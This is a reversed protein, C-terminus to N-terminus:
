PRRSPRRPSPWPARADRARDVRHALRHLDDARHGLHRGCTSGPMLPWARRAAVGRCRRLAPRDVLSCRGPRQVADHAMFSSTWSGHRDLGALRDGLRAQHHAFALRLRLRRRGVGRWGGARQAGRAARRRGARAMCRIRMSPSGAGAAGRRSASHCCRALSGTTSSGKPWASTSSGRWRRRRALRAVAALVVDPPQRATATEAQGRDVAVRRHQAPVLVQHARQQRWARLAGRM